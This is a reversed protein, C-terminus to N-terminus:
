RAPDDLADSLREGKAVSRADSHAVLLLAAPGEREGPM